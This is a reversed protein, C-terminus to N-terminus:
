GGPWAGRWWGSPRWAIVKRWGCGAPCAPKREHDRRGASPGAELLLFRMRSSGPKTGQGLRQRGGSSLDACVLGLCASVARASRLRSGDGRRPVAALVTQRGAGPHATLRAARGWMLGRSVAAIVCTSSTRLRDGGESRVADVLLAGATRQEARWLRRRQVVPPQPRGLLPCAVEQQERDQTYGRQRSDQGCLNGCDGHFRAIQPHGAVGTSRGM